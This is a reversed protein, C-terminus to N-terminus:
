NPYCIEMLMNDTNQSKKPYLTTKLTDRKVVWLLYKRGQDIHM